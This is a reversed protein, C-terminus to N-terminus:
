YTVNNNQAQEYQRQNQVQQQNYDYAANQQNYQAWQEEDTEIKIKSYISSGVGFLSACKKLCDSAAAKYSSNQNDKGGVAVKSGYQTRSGIGEIHLTGRVHYVYGDFIWQNTGKPLKMVEERWEKEVSFSWTTIGS